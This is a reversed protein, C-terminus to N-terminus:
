REHAPLRSLATEAQFQSQGAKRIPHLTSTNDSLAIPPWGILKIDHKPAIFSRLLKVILIDPARFFSLKDLLRAGM